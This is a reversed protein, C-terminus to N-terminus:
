NRKLNPRRYARHRHAGKGAACVAGVRPVRAARGPHRAPLPRLHRKRVVIEAPNGQLSIVLGQGDQLSSSRLLPGDLLAPMSDAPLVMSNPIPNYIATFLDNALVCAYSKYHGRGELRGIAKVVAAFIAPGPEKSNTYNILVPAGPQQRGYDVLGEYKDAGGIEFVSQLGRVGAIQAAGPQKGNFILLDEVRAVIKAARTFMIIAAALEPDAMM